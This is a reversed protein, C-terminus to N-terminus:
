AQIETLWEAIAPDCHGIAAPCPAIRLICSGHWTFRLLKPESPHPLQDWHAEALSDGCVATVIDIGGLDSAIAGEVVKILACPPTIQM